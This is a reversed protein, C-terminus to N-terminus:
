SVGTLTNDGTLLWEDFADLDDPINPHDTTYRLADATLIVDDDDKLAEYTDNTHGVLELQLAVPRFAGIMLQRVSTVPM